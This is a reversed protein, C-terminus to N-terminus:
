KSRDPHWGGFSHVWIRPHVLLFPNATPIKAKLRDVADEGDSIEWEGTHTDIAIFRDIDDDTLTPKINKHYYDLARDATSDIEEQTGVM